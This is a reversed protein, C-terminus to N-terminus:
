IRSHDEHTQDGKQPLASQLLKIAKALRDQGVPTHPWRSVGSPHPLSIVDVQHGHFQTRIKKGVIEELPTTPVVGVSKLVESIAIKGVAIILTPQLAEIEGRLFESCNEIEETSPPRDGKGGKARGPFCRAMASFYILERLEDENFGTAKGLWQFLTKGATHAFPKGRTSEHIGPAQGVLMIQTNLPQGYVPRDCVQPCKRCAGLRQHLIQLKQFSDEAKKM